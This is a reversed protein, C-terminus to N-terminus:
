VNVSLYVRCLDVIDLAGKEDNLINMGFTPDKYYVTNIESYGLEKLIGVLEFYCQKDVDIKLDDCTGEEYM